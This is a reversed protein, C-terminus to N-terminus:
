RDCLVQGRNKYADKLILEYDKTPLINKASDMFYDSISRETRRRMKILSNVYALVRQNISLSLKRNLYRNPPSPKRGSYYDVRSERISASIGCIKKNIRMKLNELEETTMAQIEEDTYTIDDIIFINQDIANRLNM